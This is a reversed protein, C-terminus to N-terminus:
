NVWKQHLIHLFNFFFCLTYIKGLQSKNRMDAAIRPQRQMMASTMSSTQVADCPPSTSRPRQIIHQGLSTFYLAFCVDCHQVHKILYKNNNNNNNNNNLINIYRLIALHQLRVATV